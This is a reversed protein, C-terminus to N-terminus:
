SVCTKRIYALKIKNTCCTLTRDSVMLEVLFFDALNLKRCWLMELRWCGEGEEEEGELKGDLWSEEGLCSLLLILISRSGKHALFAEM